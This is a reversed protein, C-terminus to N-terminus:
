QADHQGLPRVWINRFEVPDGHFQLSIPGTAPHNAPYSALKRFQTPGIYAEGHQTFIGNHFVTVKAPKTVKGDTYVPPEFAIDYSQWEGQPLTANVRPPLQGYLGTAQGDPYTKNNHSQLIQVEYLGMLFVGSNGGNQGDVKRGAPLRWELHLQIAGFSEKTSLDGPGGAVLSGDKIKWAAPKGGNVWADTSTGDFLVKADSPAKLSISGAPTVVPPQPRTGDHVVYPVGPLQPNNPKEGFGEAFVSPSLSLLAGASLCTAIKMM